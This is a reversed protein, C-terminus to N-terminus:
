SKMLLRLLSKQLNGQIEMMNEEDSDKEEKIRQKSALAKPKAKNWITFSVKL